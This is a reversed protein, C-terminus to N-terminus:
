LTFLPCTDQLSQRGWAARRTHNAERSGPAAQAKKGTLGTILAASIMHQRWGGGGGGGSFRSLPLSLSLGVVTSFYNIVM